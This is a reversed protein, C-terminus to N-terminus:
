AMGGNVFSTVVPWLRRPRDLWLFHGAKDIVELRGVGPPLGDVIEEAAEVPTMPDLRGVCVLTPCDIRALDARLDLRRMLEMGPGGVAPNRIRRALEEESPIRPGFAEFVKAWEMETVDDGGYDRRALEAVEDGARSRFAEVLRQLDFRAMTSLLVLAGARDAHRAGYLIAVFGGLSHGLVVPRDIGLADCFARLDDACVELSWDEPDHRASRGHDRLDVYIVQAVAILPGFHPKLYSHDYGGPGGHVVIVTPRQRMRTGDPVLAPGDVDFWLQTGNVDIHVGVRGRSTRGVETRAKAAPWAFDAAAM